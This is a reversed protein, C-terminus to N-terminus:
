WIRLYLGDYAGLLRNRAFRPQGNSDARVAYDGVDVDSEQM